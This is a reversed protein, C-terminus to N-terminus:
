FVDRKVAFISTSFNQLNLFFEIKDSFNTFLLTRGGGGWFFLKATQKTTNKLATKCEMKTWDLLFQSSEKAKVTLQDEVTDWGDEKVMRTKERKEREMRGGCLSIEQQKVKKSGEKELM